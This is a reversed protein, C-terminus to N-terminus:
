RGLTIGEVDDREGKVADAGSKGAVGTVGESTGRDGEGGLNRGGGVGGGILFSGVEQRFTRHQSHWRSPCSM